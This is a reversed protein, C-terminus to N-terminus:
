SQRLRRAIGGAGLALLTLTGPEPVPTPPPPTQGTGLTIGESVLAGVKNNSDDVYRAKIDAQGFGTLPPGALDVDFIWTLLAGHVNAATTNAVLNACEFGSGSGDCGGSNIGGSLLQWDAAGGPGSVLKAVDVANSVKIAVQDIRVGGANYGSTDITLMIRWTDVTPGASDLDAPALGLSTLTYTSGQCTGCNPGITDASAYAAATIGLISTLIALRVTQKM